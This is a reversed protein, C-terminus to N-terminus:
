FNSQIFFVKDATLDVEPKEDDKTSFLVYEYNDKASQYNLSSIGSSPDGYAPYLCFGFLLSPIVAFVTLLIIILKNNFLISRIFNLLSTKEQVEEEIPVKESDLNGKRLILKKNEIRILGTYEGSELPHLRENTTVIVLRTKSLERIIQIIKKSNNEDLSATPEDILIIKKGGFLEVGLQTRRKEGESM